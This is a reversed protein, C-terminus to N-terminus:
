LTKDEEIIKIAKELHMKAMVVSVYAATVNAHAITAGKLRLGELVQQSVESVHELKTQCRVLEGIIEYKDTIM